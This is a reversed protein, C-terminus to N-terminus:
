KANCNNDDAACEAIRIRVYECFLQLQSYRPTLLIQETNLVVAKRSYQGAAAAAAALFILLLPFGACTTKENKAM